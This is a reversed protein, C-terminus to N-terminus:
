NLVEKSKARFTLLTIEGPGGTRLPPGWFGAGKNVYLAFGGLDYLGHHYPEVLRIIWTFPFYQGAHTHGSLQASAGAAKAAAATKPQHSLMIKVAGEPAGALAEKMDLPPTGPIRLSTLDPVGALVLAAGDKALVAHENMLVRFGLDKALAVWSRVGNYYEHNGTVYYKGFPPALSALPAASPARLAADGDGFDGTLVLADPKLEEIQRAVEQAFPLGLSPGLHLDSIQALTFGDFAQPLNPLALTVRTVEVKGAYFLGVGLNLGLGSLIVGLLVRGFLVTRAGPWVARLGLSLLDGVVTYVFLCSLAGLALFSARVLAGAWVGRDDVFVPWLGWEILPAALQLLYFAGWLGLLVGGAASHWSAGGGLRAWFRLGVYLNMVGLLAAIMLFAKM